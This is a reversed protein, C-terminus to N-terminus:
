LLNKSYSTGDAISPALYRLVQRSITLHLWVFLKQQWRRVWMAVAEFPKLPAARASMPPGKGKAVVYEALMRLTAQGHAGIRGLDEMAFPVFRHRGGHSISVLHSSDADAKFKKDEVQKGAFGPISAVRPLITNKYVTTVVGDIILHRGGDAFDLVVLDGPRTRDDQRLERAEEMISAKPVGAEEVIGHLTKILGHHMLHRAGGNPCRAM